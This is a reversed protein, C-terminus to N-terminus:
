ASGMTGRVAQAARVAETRVRGIQKDDEVLAIVLLEGADAMLVHGHEADLQLTQLERYGAADSAQATRQYLAAALAAVATGSIQPKLEAVVPVGAELEAVLAGSVGPVRSLRTVAERLVDMM